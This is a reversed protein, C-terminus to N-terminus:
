RYPQAVSLYLDSGGAEAAFAGVNFTSLTFITEVVQGYSGACSDDV